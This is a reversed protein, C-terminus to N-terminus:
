LAAATRQALAAGVSALIDTEQAPKTLVRAKPFRGLIEATRGYGTYFVVPTGALVLEEAFPLVSDGALNVDLLAADIPQRGVLREAEPVSAAPGVVQYGHDGLIQKLSLAVLGEDEVVLVAPQSRPAWRPMSPPAPAPSPATGTAIVCHPALVLSCRLGEPHWDLGIDADLQRGAVDRILRSGFGLRSPPTVPPGGQESWVLQLPGPPGDSGVGLSWAVGLRGGATSLSGYKAANTALEHLLMALPQVTNPALIVEPGDIAIEAAGGQFPALEAEILPRLAAGDWSRDALMTHARALAAIRGSLAGAFAEVTEARTMQVMALVVTLVNKARHDVERMLLAQREEAQKRADIDITIGLWSAVHGADDLLPAARALMWRYSGSLHRLRYEVEFPQRAIIASHWAAVVRERDDPHLPAVWGGPRLLEDVTQGTYARWTASDEDPVSGDPLTSWHIQKSATGIARYRQDSARLRAASLREAEVLRRGFRRALWFAAASAVLVAVLGALALNRLTGLVERHFATERGGVAVRWGTVPSAEMVRLYREGTLTINLFLGTDRSSAHEQVTASAKMGIMSPDESRAVIRLDADYVTILLDPQVRQAEVIEAFRVPSIAVSLVRVIHGAADFVPTRAAIFAPTGDARRPEIREPMLGDATAAARVAQPDALAAALGPIAEVVTTDGGGGPLSLVVALWAGRRGAAVIDTVAEVRAPDDVAAAISGALGAVTARQALQATDVAALLAESTAVYRQTIEDRRGLVWMAAVVAAFLLIPIAAALAIGAL